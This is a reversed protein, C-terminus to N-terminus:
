ATSPATKRNRLKLIYDVFKITYKAASLMATGAMIILEIFKLKSM